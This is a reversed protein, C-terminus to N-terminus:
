HHKWTTVFSNKATGSLAGTLIQLVGKPTQMNVGYRPTVSGLPKGSVAGNTFTIKGFNIVPLQNSGLHEADDGIREQLPAGGAGSKTLTFTHGATLDKVTATTKTASSVITSQILDGFSVPQPAIAAITGDVIVVAAEGELVACDQILGAANFKPASATGTDFVAFAGVGNEAENCGEFNPVKFETTVSTATKSGFVWGAFSKNAKNATDAFRLGAAQALGASPISRAFAPVAGSAALLLAGV